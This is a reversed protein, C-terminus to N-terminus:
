EKIDVNNHCNARWKEKGSLHGLTIWKGILFAMFPCLCMSGILILIFKM